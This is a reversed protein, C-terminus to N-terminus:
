GGMVIGGDVCFVQGTIYRADESTLFLAINVVDQTKGIRKVATKEIFRQRHEHDLVDSMNSEILGPSIVNCRIDYTALELAATKTLAIVGAKSAAYNAQGINGTHAVASAITLICGKKARAMIKSAHKILFFTGKLNVDIVNDFDTEAMLMLLRDKIIGANCILIDITAFEKICHQIMTKVQQQDRIDCEIVCAKVDLAECAKQTLIAGQKDQHYHIIVDHGTKAFGIALAKGIGKSAGSILVVKRKM